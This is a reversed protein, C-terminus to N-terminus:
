PLLWVDIGGHRSCARRRDTTKTFFGDHCRAAAGPHDRRYGIVVDDQPHGKPPPPAHDDHQVAQNDPHQDGPPGGQQARLTSPSGVTAALAIAIAAVFTAPTLASSRM